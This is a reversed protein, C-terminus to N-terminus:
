SSPEKREVTQSKNGRIQQRVPDGTRADFHTTAGWFRRWGPMVLAVDVTDGDRGATTKKKTLEFDTLQLAGRGTAGIAVISLQQEGSTVFTAPDFLPLQMWTQGRLPYTRSVPEDRLKGRLTISHGEAIAHLSTREAPIECRWQQTILDPGAHVTEIRLPNGTDRDIYSVTRVGEDAFRSRDYRVIADETVTGRTRDIFELVPPSVPLYTSLVATPQPAPATHIINGNQFVLEIDALNEIRELPDSGLLVLDARRGPEIVGRDALGLLDAADATAARLAATESMGAEVMRRLEDHLANAPMAGIMSDTGAVIRVGAEYALAFNRRAVDIYLAGDPGPFLAAITLTPVLRTGSRAWSRLVEEDRLKHEIVGHEISDVGIHLLDAVDEQYHTHASVPLGLRHAEEVIAEVVERSLKRLSIREPGYLGGQYVLKIVGAGSAHLRRVAVRAEAPDDPTIAIRERLWRNDKALTAEPHGGRATLAPGAAVIGPGTIRDKELRRQLRIVPALPDAMCRITTVGHRALDGLARPLLRRTRFWSRVAGRVTLFDLHVHADILGPVVTKGNGDIVKADATELRGQEVRQIRGECILIDANEIARGDGTVVHAARILLVEGHTHAAMTM